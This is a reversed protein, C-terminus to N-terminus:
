AQTLIHTVLNGKSYLIVLDFTNHLVRLPRCEYKQTQFCYIRCDRLIQDINAMCTRPKYKFSYYKCIPRIEGSNKSSIYM